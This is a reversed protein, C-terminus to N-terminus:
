YYEKQKSLDDEFRKIMDEYNMSFQDLRLEYRRVKKLLKEILFEKDEIERVYERTKYEMQDSSVISKNILAVIDNIASLCGPIHSINGVKNL